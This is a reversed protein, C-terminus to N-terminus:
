DKEASITVEYGDYHLSVGIEDARYKDALSVVEHMISARTAKELKEELLDIQQKREELEKEVKELEEVQKNLKAIQKRLEVSEIEMQNIENDFNEQSVGNALAKYTELAIESTLDAINVTNSKSNYRQWWWDAVKDYTM